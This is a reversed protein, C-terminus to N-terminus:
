WNFYSDGYVLTGGLHGAVSVLLAVVLLLFRSFPSRMGRRVDMESLVAVCVALVGATTGTWRHLALALSSDAAYGSFAAHLWGLAMATAAGAAGFLVCFRVAPAPDRAGCWLSWLEGAAAAVLLAIPFHVVLVHFRGLWGFLHDALPLDVVETGLDRSAPTASVIELPTDVHAPTAAGSKIWARILNKQEATLSGARAHEPPMKNDRVLQWLKSEDPHFPVVLKPNAALRKLDEVYGFKAKPRALNAGHCEACKVSFVTRMQSALDGEQGTTREQLSPSFGHARQSSGKDLDPLMLAFLILTMPISGRSPVNLLPSM